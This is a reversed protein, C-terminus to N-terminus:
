KVRDKMFKGRAPNKLEVTVSCPAAIAYEETSGSTVSFTFSGEVAPFSEPTLLFMWRGNHYEFSGTIASSVPQSNKKDPSVVVTLLPPVLDRHVENGHRDFLHMKLPLTRMSHISVVPLHAPPEFGHCLYIPPEFEVVTFRYGCEYYYDGYDHWTGDTYNMISARDEDYREPQGPAWNTYDWQEGTVWVWNEDVKGQDSIRYAGLWAHTWERSVFTRYVFEQEESTTITVLHGQLTIGSAPDIYYQQNAYENAEIWTQCEDIATYYHGQFFVPEPFRNQAHVPIAALVALVIIGLTSFLFPKTM